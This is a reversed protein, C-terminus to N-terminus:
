FFLRAVDSHYLLHFSDRLRKYDEWDAFENNALRNYAAFLSEEDPFNGYKSPIIFNPHADEEGLQVIFRQQGDLQWADNYL